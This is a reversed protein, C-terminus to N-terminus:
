FMTTGNMMACSTINTPMGKLHVLDGPELIVSRQDDVTGRLRPGFDLNPDGM